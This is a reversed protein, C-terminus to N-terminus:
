KFLPRFCCSHSAEWLRRLQHSLGPVGSGRGVTPCASDTHGRGGPPCRPTPSSTEAEAPGPGGGCAGSGLRGARAATEAAAAGHATFDVAADAVHKKDRAPPPLSAGPRHTSWGHCELLPPPKGEQGKKRQRSRAARGHGPALRGRGHAAPPPRQQQQRAARVAGEQGGGGGGSGTTAARGGGGRAAAEAVPVARGHRRARPRGTLAARGPSPAGAPGAPLAAAPLPTLAPFLLTARLSPRAPPHGAGTM